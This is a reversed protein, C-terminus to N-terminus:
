PINSLVMPFLCIKNKKLNTKNSIFIITSQMLKTTKSLM